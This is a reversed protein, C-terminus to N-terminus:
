NQLWSNEIPWGNVNGNPAYNKLQPQWFQTYSGYYIAIGCYCEANLYRVAQRIAEKRKAPDPDRRQALLMATLKPDDVVDYNQGTGPYYNSMLWSDEDAVVDKPSIQLTHVHRRRNTAEESYLNGKLVVNLGLKKLQSQLLEGHIRRIQERDTSFPLEITMGEYGAERILRAAEAPDYRIIAKVEEQSLTGPLAGAATWGGTGLTIVRVFEDRDIGMSLAKRMRIDNFPPISNNAFIFTPDAIYEFGVGQPNQARFEQAERPPVEDLWDLQKARFAAYASGPDPLVLMHVADIYPKGAEWYTPNKAFVWRTGKQSAPVDLQYPGSGVIRDKLHGDQDYIEHPAIGMYDHAVYNIFPAFPDKFRAVVTYPDPADVSDLGELAWSINAQPLKKFDGLRGIYELMWKADPATLERGGAPTLDAFKVGRRLHFTYTKADPSVEWREALEPRIIRERHGVDPGTKFGLLSNMVVARGASGTGKNYTVDWDYPEGAARARVIGGYRPTDQSSPESAAPQQATGCALGLVTVAIPGFYRWSRM